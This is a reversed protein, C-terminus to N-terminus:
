RLEKSMGVLTIGLSFRLFILCHSFHSPSTPRPIRPRSSTHVGSEPICLNPSALLFFTPIRPRPSAPVHRAPSEAVHPTPSWLRSLRVLGSKQVSNRFYLKRQERSFCQASFLRDASWYSIKILIPVCKVVFTVGKLWNFCTVCEFVLWANAAMSLQKQRIFDWWCPM